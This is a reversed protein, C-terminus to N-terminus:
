RNLRVTLKGNYYRFSGCPLVKYQKMSKLGNNRALDCMVTKIAEARAKENLINDEIESLTELCSDLAEDLIELDGAQFVM